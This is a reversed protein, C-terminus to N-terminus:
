TSLIVTKGWITSEILLASEGGSRRGLQGSERRLRVGVARQSISCPPLATGIASSISSNQLRSSSSPSGSSRTVVPSGEM